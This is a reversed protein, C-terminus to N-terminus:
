CGTRRPDLGSAKTIELKTIEEAVTPHIGATGVLDAYTLGMRFAVAFGQIVEGASPGTFHLGRVRLGDSRTCIAKCYCSNRSGGESALSWELPDFFAHFVEINDAGYRGMAEEESLGVCGYELPTFVTTAIQSFDVAHSPYAPNQGDMYLRRALLRGAAIAAPTLEPRGDVADGVAYVNSVSTAGWDDAVIKGNTSSVRVGLAELGLTATAPTRGVAVLVNDFEDEAEKEAGNEQSTLYRVRLRKREPGIREISIPQSAPILRSGRAQMDSAVVNAMDQDFGRLFISRAMVTTDFGMGTLFGACELAVYSGGVVLCKGPSGKMSFLDDSTLCLEGGPVQLPKPRGGVALLVDRSHLKAASSPDASGSDSCGVCIVGDASRDILFGRGNFYQVNEANLATRYGWNLSRIYNQIRNVLGNWDFESRSMNDGMIDGGGESNVRPSRAGSWGFDRAHDRFADGLASSHHMLKKPICGVNVCTGGLGWATGLPSPAVYDLLAVSKNLQAAERAAAIGGSGGGIVILDYPDQPGGKASRGGDSPKTNSYLYRRGRAVTCVRTWPRAKVATTWIWPM